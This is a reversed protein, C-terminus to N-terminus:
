AHEDHLVKRRKKKENERCMFAEIGFGFDLNFDICPLYTITKYPSM